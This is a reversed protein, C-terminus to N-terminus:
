HAIWVVTAVFDGTLAFRGAFSRRGGLSPKGGDVLSAIFTYRSWDVELSIDFFDLFIRTVPFYAKFFAEKASFCLSGIDLNWSKKKSLREWEDQTAVYSFLERSVARQQELDVGIGLFDSRRGVHAVCISGSHSISGLYGDPWIPIRNEDVLIRMPPCGANALARRALNRGTFFEHRRDEIAGAVAAAEDADFPQFSSIHGVATGTGPPAIAEFWEALHRESLSV